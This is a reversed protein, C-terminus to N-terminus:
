SSMLEMTVFCWVVIPPCCHETVYSSPANPWKPISGCTLYMLNAFGGGYISHHVNALISGEKVAMATLALNTTNVYGLPLGGADSWAVFKNMKGGNIQYQEQWFRQVLPPSVSTSPYYQTLDFPAVPANAPFRTDPARSGNVPALLPPPLVKFRFDEKSIQSSNDPHEVGPYKPLLSEFSWGELYLVVINKLKEYGPPPSYPKPKKEADVGTSLVLITLLLCLTSLSPWQAM